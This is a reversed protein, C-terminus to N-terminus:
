PRPLYPQFPEGGEPRLGLAKVYVVTLVLMLTVPGMMCMVRDSNQEFKSKLSRKVPTKSGPPPRELLLFVAQVVQRITLKKPKTQSMQSMQAM